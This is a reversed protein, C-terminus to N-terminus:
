ALLINESKYLISDPNVYSDDYEPSKYLIKPDAPKRIKAKKMAFTKKKCVKSGDTTISVPRAELTSGYLSMQM